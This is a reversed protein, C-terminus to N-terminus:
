SWESNNQVTKWDSDSEKTKGRDIRGYDDLYRTIDSEDYDGVQVEIIKIPRDKSSLRHIQNKKIKVVDGVSLNRNEVGIICSGEGFVVSWIEERNKHSQLSLQHYPKIYLEKVQYGDGSQLIKFYGWPREEIM